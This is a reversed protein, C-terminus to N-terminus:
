SLRVLAAVPNVVDKDYVDNMIRTRLANYLGWGRNAHEDMFSEDPAVVLLTGPLHDADDICERLIEYHDVTMARTYYPLEDRPNRSLAVRRNDLFIVTGSRGASRIWHLTSQLFHRATTRNIPTYVEFSRVSSIRTNEGTLWDVLPQGGYETTDNAQGELQCFQEMAIRFAHLMHSDKFVGEQLLQRSQLRVYARDLNNARAIAAYVDSGNRPDIGEVSYDGEEFLRLFRRRALKRWNLQKALRFYIHQPLHVRCSTADIQIYEYDLAEARARLASSLAHSNEDATVAFKVASGGDKIFSALYERDIHEMWEPVSLEDSM